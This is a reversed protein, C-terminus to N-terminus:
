VLPTLFASLGGTIGDTRIRTSMSIPRTRDTARSRTPGHLHGCALALLCCFTLTLLLIMNANTHSGAAISCPTVSFCLWRAACPALCFPVSAREFQVLVLTNSIAAAPCVWRPNGPQCFHLHPPRRWLSHCRHSM